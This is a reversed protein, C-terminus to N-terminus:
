REGIGAGNGRVLLWFVNLPNVGEGGSGECARETFAVELTSNVLLAPIGELRLATLWPCFLDQPSVVTESPTNQSPLPHISSWKSSRHESDPRPLSM